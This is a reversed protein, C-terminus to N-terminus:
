VHRGSLTVRDAAALLHRDNTWVEGLGLEMATVLHIADGARLFISPPLKAMLVEVRRLIRDTIPELIWVGDHVDKRFQDQVLPATKATLTGERLQRHFVCALEAVALSSSHLAECEGALKRVEASDPEHLYCKAIYASDFYADKM